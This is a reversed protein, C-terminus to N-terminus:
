EVGKKKDSQKEEKDELKMNPISNAIQRRRAEAAVTFGPALSQAISKMLPRYEEAANQWEEEGGSLLECIRSSVINELHPRISSITSKIETHKKKKLSDKPRIKKIITPATKQWEEIRLINEDTPTSEVSLSYETAELYQDQDTSFGITSVMRLNKQKLIETFVSVWQGATTDPFSIINSMYLPNIKEKKIQYMAHPDQWEFGINKTSGKGDWVCKKILFDNKGCNICNSKNKDPQGLWARRPLWTLGLLLPVEGNNPLSQGHKEWEPTGIKQTNTMLRNLKLSELLSIGFAIKYIPPKANIGPSKGSEKTM